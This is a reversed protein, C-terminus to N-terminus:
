GARRKRAKATEPAVAMRLGLARLIRDMSSLRPNGGASLAEHLSVRHLKSSRALRTMGMRADVVDKLAILFTSPGDELCANLYGICREPSARLRELLWERYDDTERLVAATIPSTVKRQPSTRAKARRTAGASSSSSRQAKARPTIRTSQSM